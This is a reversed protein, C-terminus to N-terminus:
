NAETEQFLWRQEAANPDYIELLETFEPEDRIPDFLSSHCLMVQLDNGARLWKKAAFETFKEKEARSM